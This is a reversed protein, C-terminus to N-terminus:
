TKNVVLLFGFLYDLNKKRRKKRKKKGRRGSM